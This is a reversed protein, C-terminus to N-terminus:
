SSPSVEAAVERRLAEIKSDLESGGVPGVGFEAGFGGYAAPAGWYQSGLAGGFGFGGNWATAPAAYAAGTYGARAWDVGLTPQVLGFSAGWGSLGADGQWNSRDEMM